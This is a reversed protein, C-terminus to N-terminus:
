VLYSFCIFFLVLKVSHSLVRRSNTEEYEQGGSAVKGHARKRFQLVTHKKCFFETFFNNLFIM